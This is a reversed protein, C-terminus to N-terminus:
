YGGYLVFPAWVLPNARRADPDHRFARQTAALAQAPDLGRRLQAYFRAMFAATTDDAVPWLSLLAARNGAALSAHALGLLGRGHEYHGVGTDCASLVLLDANMRLGALEAATLVGQAPRQPTAGALAIASSEPQGAPAWAHTAFHVYRYALLEDTQSARRLREKQAADGLWTTSRAPPFQAAIAELEVRAFPLPQRAASALEMVQLDGSPPLVLGSFDVAGIALLDRAHPARPAGGQWRAYTSLSPAYSIEYRDLALGAGLPLAQLPVGVLEDDGVFVLRRVGALAPGLPELLQRALRRGLSDADLYAGAAGEPRAAQVALRGDALPWARLPDGRLRAVWAAANRGLDPDAFPVFRAPVGPRVVLAWWAAGSHLVSVLATGRALHDRLEDLTPPVTAPPALHLRERLGAELRGREGVALTRESELRIREVLDSSIAIREDYDQIRDVLADLERRAEPPLRTRRWAQGAFRDGLARDRALESVRLAAELENDQAHLLALDRYGAIPSVHGDSAEIWRSFEGERAISGETSVRRLEEVNKLLSLLANKAKVRHGLRLCINAYGGLASLAEFSIPTTHESIALWSRQAEDQITQQQEFNASELACTLFEFRAYELSWVDDSNITKIDQYISKLLQCGKSESGALRLTRAYNIAEIQYDPSDSGYAALLNKLVTDRKTLEARHDGYMSDLEASLSLTQIKLQSDIAFPDELIAHQILQIAQSATGYRGNQVFLYALDWLARIQRPETLTQRGANRSLFTRSSIELAELSAGTRFYVESLTEDTSILPDDDEDYILSLKQRLSTLTQIAEEEKGSLVFMFARARFLLYFNREDQELRKEKIRSQLAQLASMASETHGTELLLDITRIGNSISESSLAGFTSDVIPQLSNRQSIAEQNQDMFSLTRANALEFHVRSPNGPPLSAIQDRNLHAAIESALQVHRADLQREIATAASELTDELSAQEDLVECFDELALEAAIGLRGPARFHVLSKLHSSELVISPTDSISKKGM